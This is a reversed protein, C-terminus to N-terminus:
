LVGWDIHRALDGLKKAAFYKALDKTKGDAIQVCPDLRKEDNVMTVETGLLVVWREERPGGFSDLDDRVVRLKLWNNESM